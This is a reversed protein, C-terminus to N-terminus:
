ISIIEYMESPSVEPYIYIVYVERDSPVGVRNLLAVLQESVFAPSLPREFVDRMLGQERFGALASCWPLGSPGVERPENSIGVRWGDMCYHQIQKSQMLRALPSSLTQFAEQLQRLSPCSTIGLAPELLIPSGGISAFVAVCPQGADAASDFALPPVAPIYSGSSTNRNSTRDQPPTVPQLGPAGHAQFMERVRDLGSTALATSPNNQIHATASAREDMPQDIPQTFTDDSESQPTSSPSPPLLGPMTSDESADPNHILGVPLSSQMPSAHQSGSPETLLRRNPRSPLLATSGLISGSPQPGYASTISSIPTPNLSNTEGLNAPESNPLSNTVVAAETHFMTSFGTDVM